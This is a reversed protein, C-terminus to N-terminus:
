VLMRDAKMLADAIGDDFVDSATGPTDEYKMTIHDADTFENFVSEMDVFSDFDQDLIDDTFDPLETYSCASSRSSPPTMAAVANCTHPMDTTTSLPMTELSFPNHFELGLAAEPADEPPPTILHPTAHPTVLNNRVAESILQQVSSGKRQEATGDNSKLSAKRAATEIMALNQEASPYNDQLEHLVRVCHVFSQLHTPKKSGDVCHMAQLHVSASRFIMAITNPPLHKAVNAHLLKRAVEAMKLSSLQVVQQFIDHWNSEVSPLLQGHTLKPAHLASLAGFHLMHLRLRQLLIAADSESLVEISPTIDLELEEPLGQYWEHLQTRCISVQDIYAPATEPDVNGILPFDLNVKMSRSAKPLLQLRLIKGICICLKVREICALAVFRKLSPDSALSFATTQLAPKDAPASLNFDDIDLLPVECEEIRIRPVRRLELALMFERTIVCWWVRKGHRQQQPDISMRSPERDLGIAYATTTALGSWYAGDKREDPKDMWSSMLLLAQIQVLRDSEYDMEYLAQWEDAILLLSVSTRSVRCKAFYTSRAEKRSPYGAETFYAEDVHVSGAFIVAHFLLLSLKGSNTDGGEVIRLFDELELIPIMPHVYESYARLIETRLPESPVTTVGKRHLFFFEDTGLRPTLPKLFAETAPSTPKFGFANSPLPHLSPWNFATSESATTIPSMQAM